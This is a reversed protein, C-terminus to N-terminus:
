ADLERARREVAERNIYKALVLWQASASTLWMGNGVCFGAGLATLLLGPAVTSERFCIFLIFISLAYGVISLLRGAVHWRERYSQQTLQRALARVIERELKDPVKM